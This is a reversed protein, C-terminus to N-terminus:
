PNKKYEVVSGSGEGGRWEGGRQDGGTEEGGMEEVGRGGKGKCTPGKFGALPEPPASYAGWPTQLRVGASNQIKTCKLRLIQCRTDVTKIIKGLILQGFGIKSEV